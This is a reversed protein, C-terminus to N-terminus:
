SAFASVATIVLGDAVWRYQAEKHLNPWNSPLASREEERGEGTWVGASSLTLSLHCRRETQATLLPLSPTAPLLFPCIM